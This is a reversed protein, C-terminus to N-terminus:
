GLVLHSDSLELYRGLFLKPDAHPLEAEVRARIAPDMRLQMATWHRELDAARLQLLDTYTSGGDFSVLRRRLNLTTMPCM